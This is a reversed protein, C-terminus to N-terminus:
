QYETWWDPTYPKGTVREFRERLDERRELNQRIQLNIERAMDECAERPAQVQNEVKQVRELFWRQVQGMDIFGSVDLARATNIADVFPQHFAPDSVIDNVLMVGDQALSPNPPLSDGGDVIIKGYEPSALYQLFKLAHERNPSLANVGAARAACAVSSVRGPLHPLQAAGLTPAIEPFNPVQILYWRGIIMMAAKGSSFFNIGGVGWGGQAAMSAAETPTSLVHHEHMLDHFMQIAGIVEESDLLSCLGDETFLRGGFNIILDYCVLESFHHALAIHEKGSKSPNELLQRGTEIFEDWTWDSTPYPVGHDDFVAKNFVVCNAGVNCPYRYQKGDSVLRPRIAPYTNDPGFGMEAAYPTLDLLIGAEKMVLMQDMSYLDIIDPGVGSACQVLLKTSDAGLGWDVRLDYEPNMEMFGGVQLKRAPNDDTMWRLYTKNPDRDRNVTGQAVLYLVAFLGLAGLFFRRM